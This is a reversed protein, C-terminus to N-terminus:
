DLVEINEGIKLISLKSYKPKRHATKSRRATGSSELSKTIDAASVGLVAAVTEVSLKEEQYLRAALPHDVVASRKIAPRIVAGAM